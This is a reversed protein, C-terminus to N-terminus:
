QTIARRAAIIESLRIRKQRRALPAMGATAAGEMSAAVACGVATDLWHNDIGPARLKWEDVTKGRAEVPTRRESTWHEALMRHSEAAASDGFISLGGRDGMGISLRQALFSKWWNADFLVHRVARRGTPAPMRWHSGVRDGKKAAYEAMQRSTAGIWRGHSPTLQGSYQSQRCFQYVVETSAGWNADILCRSVRAVGGDDRPLERGLIAAAAGELGAFIMGELGARPAISALTRKADRLTFYPVRQEPFTGYDVLHGTFDQEWAVIMWYLLKGQVDIFATVISSSRPVVGRRYGNTRALIEEIGVDPAAEEHLPKPDNQYEAWFAHEDQLRLNMAHQIASAEDPNFRAEWAVKAGADMKKRHKKYFATAPELGKEARLGEARIESYRAWLKEDHPFEYVMRMREGQWQPHRQSDLLRDALDDRAVVTLTMLGAIKKRPGALGLIAGAVLRERTACQSPSRASEDTQPDDVLVLEPRVSVGDQRKYKMGRIRGTIGAVRMIAGSSKAGAITPLVLEDATWHIHTQRGQYLQGPARQHIGELCQVPFCVEPFDEALLDNSAIETKVSDLSQTASDKEAGILAVFQRHGYVIAWLCAVECLSTKGSGRPMAMAFLGGELVAQEIKRIVVLHDPSWALTFTMPMYTECFLRLDRECRARRDPDRVPPLEGIDRGSKSLAEFRARMRERHADYANAHPPPAAAPARGKRKAAEISRDRRRALWGTLRLVDVKTPDAPAAIATGASM